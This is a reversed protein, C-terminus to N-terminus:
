SWDQVKMNDHKSYHCIDIKHTESVWIPKEYAEAM